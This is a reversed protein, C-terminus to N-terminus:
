VNLVQISSYLHKEDVLLQLAISEVQIHISSGIGSYLKSFALQNCVVYASYEM